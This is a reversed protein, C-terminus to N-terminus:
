RSAPTPAPAPSPPPTWGFGELYHRALRQANDFSLGQADLRGQVGTTDGDLSATLVSLDFLAPLKKYAQLCVVARLPLGGRAAVTHETCQAAVRHGDRGGVRENEFSASYRQQFRLWGIRSGDYTEHRVALSGTRLRGDIFVASPMSCDSREFALGRLAEGNGSGWCRFITEQPVPIRYRPHGAPRWPQAIVRDVLAAQHALLQREIEPHLPQTIPKADRGRALLAQALGGPVLFSVQEGDRRAAVNVGVLRGQADLAPGGSMGASLSGGFFLTPLHHREALGNYAGETVAFGVDLPNGLSFIRAGREPEDDPPRFPVAGRGRLPAPDAPKLLALDHVVDIALLDLAGQRGDVTAYVLRHRQPALAYSSVVHYNTILHGDPTVLFASGVSSQSDQTKLLTRVQLLRPQMEAYIRQGTGSVAAPAPAAQPVAPAVQAAAGPGTLLGALVLGTFAATRAFRTPLRALHRVATVGATYPGWDSAPPRQEPPM